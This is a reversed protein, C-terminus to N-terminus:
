NVRKPILVVDGAKLGKKVLIKSTGALGTEIDRRVPKGDVEVWVFKRVEPRQGTASWEEQVARYPVAIADPVEDVIIDLTATMTPRLRPDDEEIEVVLEFIMVGSTDRRIVSQRKYSRDKAIGAIRTVKGHFKEDPFAELTVEARQGLGIRSFDVENVQTEAVMKSLNVIDLFPGGKWVRKGEEPKGWQVNYLVTGETPAYLVASQVTKTDRRLYEQKREVEALAVDVSTDKLALQAAKNKYAQALKVKAQAVREKAINIDEQPAGKKVLELEVVAKDYAARAQQYALKGRILEGQSAVGKEWLAKTRDYKDKAADYNVRPREMAINAAELEQATPQSELDHLRALERKLGIQAIQCEAALLKSTLERDLKAKEHLAQAAQLLLQDSEVRESVEHDDIIALKDDKKVYTGEPVLELIEGNIPGAVVLADRPRLEGTQPVYVRFTEPKIVVRAVVEFPKGDPSLRNCACLGLVLWACCRAFRLARPKRRAHPLDM